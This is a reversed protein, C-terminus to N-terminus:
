PIEAHRIPRRDRYRVATDDLSVRGPRAQVLGVHRAGPDIQVVASRDRVLRTCRNGTIGPNQGADAGDDRGPNRVGPTKGAVRCCRCLESETGEQSGSSAQRVLGASGHRGRRRAHQEPQRVVGINASRRQDVLSAADDRTPGARHGHASDRGHGVGPSMAPVETPLRDWNPTESLRPAPSARAPPPM